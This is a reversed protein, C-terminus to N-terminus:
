VGRIFPFELWPNQEAKAFEWVRSCVRIYRNVTSPSATKKAWDTAGNLFCRACRATNKSYNARISKWLLLSLHDVATHEEARSRQRKQRSAATREARARGARGALNRELEANRAIREMAARNVLREGVHLLQIHVVQADLIEM